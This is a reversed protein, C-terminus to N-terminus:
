VGVTTFVIIESQLMVIKQIFKSHFHVIKRHKTLLRYVPLSLFTSKAHFFYYKESFIYHNKCVKERDAIYRCHYFRQNQM